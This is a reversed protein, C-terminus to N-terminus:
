RAVGALAENREAIAKRLLEQLREVEVAHERRERVQADLVEAFLNDSALGLPRHLLKHILERLEPCGTQESGPGRYGGGGETLQLGVGFKCDCTTANPGYACVQRRVVELASALIEAGHDRHALLGYRPEWPQPDTTM